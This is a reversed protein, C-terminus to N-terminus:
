KEYGNTYSDLTVGNQRVELKVRTRDPGPQHTKSTDRWTHKVRLELGGFIGVFDEDIGMDGKDGQSQLGAAAVASQWAGNSESFASAEIANRITTIAEIIKM